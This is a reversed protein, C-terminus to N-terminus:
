TVFNQMEVLEEGTIADFYITWMGHQIRFEWALRFELGDKSTRVFVVLIPKKDISQESIKQTTPEGSEKTYNLGKGILRQRCESDSFKPAGPVEIGPYWHGDLSLVKQADATVRPNHYRGEVVIPMGNFQQGEFSINLQGMVPSGSSPYDMKEFTERVKLEDGSKVGTNRSNDLLWAKVNSMVRDKDKIAEPSKVFVQDLRKIFGFEDLTVRIGPNRANFEKHM